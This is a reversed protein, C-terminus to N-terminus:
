VPVASNRWVPYVGRVREVNDGDPTVSGVFVLELSGLGVGLPFFEVLAWADDHVDGLLSTAVEFSLDPKPEVL